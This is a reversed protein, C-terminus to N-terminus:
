ESSLFEVLEAPYPSLGVSELADVQEDAEDASLFPKEKLVQLVKNMTKIQDIDPTAGGLGEFASMITNIITGFGDGLSRCCFLEPLLVQVKQIETDGDLVNGAAMSDLARKLRGIAITLLRLATIHERRFAHRAPYLEAQSLRLGRSGKNPAESFVFDLAEFTSATTSTEPPRRQG